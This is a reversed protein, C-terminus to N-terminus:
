ITQPAGDKTGSVFMAELVELDDLAVEPAQKPDLKGSDLGEAWAAVENEVGAREQPFEKTAADKGVPQVIVTQLEVTVTGKECAVRYEYSNFTTGFSMCVTGLVGSTTRCTANLTDIPPLHEQVQSTFASVTKINNEPGLLYRIVAVYHIGGDLLFGGQYQPTKRWATEFYKGGPETFKFKQTHFGIVKGLTKIQERAYVVSEIYRFNEAVAWTTGSLSSKSSTYWQLL